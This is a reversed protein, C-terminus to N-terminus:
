LGVGIRDHVLAVAPWIICNALRAFEATEFSLNLRRAPPLFWVAQQVAERYLNLVTLRHGFPFRL